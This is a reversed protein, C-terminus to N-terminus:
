MCSDFIFFSLLQGMVELKSHLLIVIEFRNVIFSYFYQNVQATLGMTTIMAYVHGMTAVPAM